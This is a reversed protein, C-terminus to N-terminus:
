KVVRGKIKIRGLDRARKQYQKNSEGQLRPLFIDLVTDRNFIKSGRDRVELTGYGELEIKQGLPRVNNAIVMQTLRKGECSINGGCEVSTYFTLTFEIYESESERQRKIERQKEDAKMQEQQIAQQLVLGQGIENLMNIKRQEKLAFVGKEIRILDTEIIVKDVKAMTSKFSEHTNHTLTIPLLFPIICMLSITKKLM